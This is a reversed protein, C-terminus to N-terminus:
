NASRHCTTMRVYRAPWRAIVEPDGFARAANMAAGTGSFGLHDSIGQWKVGEARMVAARRGRSRRGAAREASQCILCPGGSASRHGCPMRSPRRPRRPGVEGAAAFLTLQIAGSTGRRVNCIWHALALNWGDNSGGEVVPILHDRSASMPHPWLLGRNVRKGCLHCRWGDRDGVEGVSMAVSGGARRRLNKRQNVARRRDERCQESCSGVCECCPQAKNVYYRHCRDSCTKRFYGGPFGKKSTAKAVFEVGCVACQSDLTPIPRRPKTSRRPWRGPNARRCPHCATEGPPRFTSRYILKGCGACAIDPRKAM